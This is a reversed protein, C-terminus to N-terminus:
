GCVSEGSQQEGRFEFGDDEGPQDVTAWVVTGNVAVQTESHMVVLRLREEVADVLQGGTLHQFSIRLADTHARVGRQDIVQFGAGEIRVALGVRGVAWAGDLPEVVFQM